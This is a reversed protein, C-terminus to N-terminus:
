FYFILGAKLPDVALTRFRVDGLSVVAVGMEFTFGLNELGQLFFETGFHANIEYGNRKGDVTNEDTILAAQGGMYFNLNPEFFVVRRIGLNVQMASNNKETDLGVGGTFAYEMSPYYVMALSPLSKSLNDKIGVGLRHTMDKSYALSSFLSSVFSVVIVLLLKSRM